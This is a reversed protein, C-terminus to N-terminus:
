APVARVRARYQTAWDVGNANTLSFTTSATNGTYFAVWASGNWREVAYDYTAAGVVSSWSGTVTRVGNTKVFTWGSPTALPTGAGSSASPAADGDTGAGWFDVRTGDPSATGQRRGVAPRGATIASNTVSLAWTGPEADGWLWAKARITTGSAEVRIAVRQGKAYTFSVSQLETYVGAVIAALRFSVGGRVGAMYCTEASVDARVFACMDWIFLESAEERLGVTLAQQATSSSGISNPTLWEMAGGINNIRLARSSTMTADSVVNLTGSGGGRRTYGSPQADLTYGSWDDYLTAM